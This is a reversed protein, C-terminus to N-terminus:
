SLISNIVEKIFLKQSLATSSELEMLTKKNHKQCILLQPILNICQFDLVENQTKIEVDDILGREVKLWVSVLGYEASNINRQLSYSPSYGFNWDWQSYKSDILQKISEIDTDTLEYRMSGPNEEKIYDMLYNAFKEISIEQPLVESLNTVRARVSKVASDSYRNPDVYLVRALKELDTSFLLTGHHMVRNKHVHEANGSIKKGNVMLSNHGEFKANVGFKELAEIIPKTYGKFDVLKGAVGNKIFCFNINGLDHYVAGGGSLRRVVAIKNEEVFDFDLEAIANQHKGVIVSPQNRYLFFINDSFNKLLHEETAINFYPDTSISQIYLM